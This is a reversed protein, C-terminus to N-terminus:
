LLFNVNCDDTVDCLLDLSCLYITAGGHMGIMNYRCVLNKVEQKSVYVM